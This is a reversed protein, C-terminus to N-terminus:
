IWIGFEAKLVAECAEDAIERIEVGEPSLIKLENDILFKRGTPNQLIALKKKTFITDPSTANFYNPLTYDIWEQPILDFSYLDAWKGELEVQLLYERDNLRSVCFRDPGQEAEVPLRSIAVPERLGYGGFGLDCLFFDSEVEVRLVMHTKPRRETYNFRPRAALMTYKIGIAELAMCFLGNLEYCYGGRNAYVLKEVITEPVLSVIKGHWVDGNEFPITYLQCRMLEALTGLDAKPVASFGIRGLYDPLKFNTAQM